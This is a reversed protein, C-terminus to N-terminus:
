NPWIKVLTENDRKEADRNSVLLTSFISSSTCAELIQVIFQVSKDSNAIDLHTDFSRCKYRPSTLIEPCIQNGESTENLLSNWGPERILLYLQM